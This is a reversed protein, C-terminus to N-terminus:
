KTGSAAPQPTTAKAPDDWKIVCNPLAKQLAAVSAPTVKTQTLNISTLKQCGELPSLDVTNECKIYTFRLDQLPMGKVPSLDKVPSSIISLGRLRMGQLPSLDSISSKVVNLSVLNMGRLASLDSLQRAEQLDLEGLGVLARVPAIDVLKDSRLSLSYVVGGIIAPQPSNGRGYLEGDFGPNLEVLKKAVAKIQEEATLAAVEKEWQKFAPSNIDTLSNSPSNQSIDSTPSSPVLKATMTTKGGSIIEFDRVYFEFGDKQVRLRHKGPDVEFTIKSDGGKQSVEIKGEADLVQVMSDPQDVEVILTGDKTKVSYIVGAVILVCLLGAGILLRGHRQWFSDASKKPKSRKRQAVDVRKESRHWTATPNTNPTKCKELDIIAESMTQYREDISKAVMKNFLAEVDVPVDDRVDRFSPIPDFQHSILKNTITDGAYLPRATLLYYLSCGLSYIDARADAAHSSRAQEPAMYDITGFVAGTGTLEAQAGASSDAEIRALGMDLIKVTGEKDLLLNAPKIDRHIVGHNHAFELGRAAQLIYNVSKEVSVPGNKKVLASLDQGEVYQMVLFHVGNAQDADHATVINPHELKAAARVEREFRAVAAVDKTMAPPLMKIAVLRDMRRHQAKFVQGMGGAGIKDLITYSGLILSKIRGAAVQQAQFKTLLNQKHLEQLLEEVSTPHAKPPVYNELKGPAIVGSDSLQKVLTELAVPM